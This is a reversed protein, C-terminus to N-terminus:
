DGFFYIQRDADGDFSICKLGHHLKPDWGNPLNRNKVWDAGCEFNLNDPKKDNNFLNIKLRETFGALGMM